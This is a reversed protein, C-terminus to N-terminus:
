TPEQTPQSASSPYTVGGEWSPFLIFLLYTGFGEKSPLSPTDETLIPCWGGPLCLSCCTHSTARRAWFQLFFLKCHIHLIFLIGQPYTSCFTLLTGVWWGHLFPLTSAPFFDRECLFVSHRLLLLFFISPFGGVVEWVVLGTGVSGEQGLGLGTWTRRDRDRDILSLSM